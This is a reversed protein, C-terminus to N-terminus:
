GKSVQAAYEASRLLELYLQFKDLGKNKLNIYFKKLEELNSLLVGFYILTNKIQKVKNGVFRVSKTLWWSTSDQYNKM